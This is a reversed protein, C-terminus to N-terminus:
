HGGERPTRNQFAEDAVIRMAEEIPIRYAGLSTDVVAYSNLVEDERARLDRLTASEPALVAEYVKQESEVTFFQFLVVLVAAVFVTAVITVITLKGVAVDRKEYGDRHGVSPTPPDTHEKNM